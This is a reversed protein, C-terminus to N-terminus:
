RYDPHCVKTITESVRFAVKHAWFAISLYRRAMYITTHFIHKYSAAEDNNVGGPGMRSGLKRTMHDALFILRDALDLRDHTENKQIANLLLLSHEKSLAQGVVDNRGENGFTDGTFDFDYRFSSTTKGDASRHMKLFASFGGLASQYQHEGQKQTAITAFANEIRSSTDKYHELMMLELDRSSSQSDFGSELTKITSEVAEAAVEYLSHLARMDVNVWHALENADPAQDNALLIYHSYHVPGDKAKSTPRDWANLTTKVKAQLAKSKQEQGFFVRKVLQVMREFAAKIAEWIKGAVERLNEVAARTRERGKLGELSVMMEGPKFGVVNKLAELVPELSAVVEEPVDNPYATELRDATENLAVEVVQANDISEDLRSLEQSEFELDIAAGGEEAPQALNASSLGELALFPKRM